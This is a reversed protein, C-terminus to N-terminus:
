FAAYEPASIEVQATGRSLEGLAACLPAETGAPMRWVLTVDDAYIPEELKGGAGAVLRQSQEFLSYPLRVRCRVIQRMTVVEAAALAGSAAATYARVLGGTGLLIGGFYRTVVVIVDSLGAHGIAELVPTGATKAPEGDDSYRTRGGQRLVYAYVNHRATRNAARVQDLLALAKEETDAFAATAIFRSRKEEYTFTSRGRVTRYDSM